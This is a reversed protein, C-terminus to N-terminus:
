SAEYSTPRRPPPRGGPRMVQPPPAARPPPQEAADRPADEGKPERPRLARWTMFAPTAALLVVAWWPIVGGTWVHTGSTLSAVHRSWGFGFASNGVVGAQQLQVHVDEALNTSDRDGSQFSWPAPHGDAPRSYSAFCVRGRSSYLQCTARRSEPREADWALRDRRWYSRAWLAAALVAPALALLTLLIRRRKSM